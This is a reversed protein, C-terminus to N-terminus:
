ERAYAFTCACRIHVRLIHADRTHAMYFYFYFKGRGSPLASFFLPPRVRSGKILVLVRRLRGLYRDCVCVRALFPM